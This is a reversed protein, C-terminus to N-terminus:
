KPPTTITGKTSNTIIQIMITMVTLIIMMRIKIM